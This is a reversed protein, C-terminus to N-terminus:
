DQVPFPVQGEVVDWGGATYQGRVRLQLQGRLDSAVEFRARLDPLGGTGQVIANPASDPQGDMVTAVSTGDPLVLALNTNMVNKGYGFSSTPSVGFDVVLYAKGAEIQQGSGPDAYILHAGTVDVALDGVTGSGTAGPFELPAQAVLEGTAGFPARAQNVETGGIVLETANLDLDAPVGDFVLEANATSGAPVTPLDTGLTGGVAVGDEELHIADYAPTVDGGAVNELQATVTLRGVSEDPQGGVDEGAGLEAAQLHYVLSGYHVAADLTVSAPGGGGGGGEGEGDGDSGDAAASEGEGGEGDGDADRDAAARGTAGGAGEAADAADDGGAAGAGATDGEGGSGGCAAGTAVALVVLVGLLARTRRTM